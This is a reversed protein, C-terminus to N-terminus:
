EFYSDASFVGLGLGLGLNETVRFQVSDNAGVDQLVNLLVKM